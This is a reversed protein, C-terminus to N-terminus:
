LREQNSKINRRRTRGFYAAIVQENDRITTFPGQAIVEGENLVYVDECLEAIVRMNHEIILFTTGEANLHRILAWLIHRLTPNVGAAPEDLLVLIPNNMLVRVFEVLRQQGYSLECGLVNVYSKLQVRELLELARGRNDARWRRDAVLLNEVVTLKPFVRSLQFTRALGQRYIQSPRLGLIPRSNFFVAGTAGRDMGSVVQFFTTKGSGNPGILGTISGRRISLHVHRLAEVGGFNRCLDTTQLILDAHEM